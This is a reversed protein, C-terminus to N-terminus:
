ATAVAEVQSLYYAHFRSVKQTYVFMAAYMESLALVGCFRYTGSLKPHNVTLDRRREGDWVVDPLQNRPLVLALSEDARDIRVFYAMPEDGPIVRSPPLTPEAAHVEKFRAIATRAAAERVETAADLAELQAATPRIVDARGEAMLAAHWADYAEDAAADVAPPVSTSFADVVDTFDEFDAAPDDGSSTWRQIVAGTGLEFVALHAGHPVEAAATGVVPADAKDADVVPPESVEGGAIVDMDDRFPGRRSMCESDLLYQAVKQVLPNRPHTQVLRGASLGRTSVQDLLGAVEKRERMLKEIQADLTRQRERIESRAAAIGPPMARGRRKRDPYYHKGAAAQASM